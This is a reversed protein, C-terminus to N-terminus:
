VTEKDADPTSKENEVVAEENEIVPSGRYFAVSILALFALTFSNNAFILNFDLNFIKFTHDIYFAGFLCAISIMFYLGVNRIPSLQAIILNRREEKAILHNRIMFYILGIFFLVEVISLDLLINGYEFVGIFIFGIGVLGILFMAISRVTSSFALALLVVGKIVDFWVDSMGV